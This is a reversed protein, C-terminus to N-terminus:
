YIFFSKSFYRVVLFFTFFDYRQHTKFVDLTGIPVGVSSINLEKEKLINSISINIKPVSTAFLELISFM